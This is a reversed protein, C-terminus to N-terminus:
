RYGYQIIVKGATRKPEIVLTTDMTVLVCPMSERDYVIFEAPPPLATTPAEDELLRIGILEFHTTVHFDILLFKAWISFGVQRTEQLFVFPQSLIFLIEYINIQM